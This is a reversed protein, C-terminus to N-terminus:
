RLKQAGVREDWLRFAAVLQPTDLPAEVPVSALARDFEPRGFQALVRRSQEPAMALTVGRRAPGPFLYGDAFIKAQQTETMMFRLVDLAAALREETLGRPLAVYQGDAVWRFDRFMAVASDPPIIGQVRPYIEWGMTQVVIDRSGQAFERLTAGTGSPYYEIFRNLEQLYSWTRSWGNTPDRPASDGLMYPLGMIFTRGPGSNAPRAYILKNPNQRAWDLLEQPSRPPTAVRTPAYGLMPGQESYAVLMGFNRGLAHVAAAGGEFLTAPDLGPDRFRSLDEWLNQEVGAALGDLGTLVMDIDLRRARQMAQIKGALEPAPARQFAFRSVRDAHRQAYDEFISQTLLLNGAVDIVSLPVARGSLRPSQAAALRPALMATGALGIASRRGIRTRTTM